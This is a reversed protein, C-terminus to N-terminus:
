CAEYPRLDHRRLGLRVEEALRKGVTGRMYRVIASRHTMMTNEKQIRKRELLVQRGSTYDDTLVDTLPDIIMTRLQQNM